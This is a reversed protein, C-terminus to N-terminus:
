HLVRLMTLEKVLPLLSRPMTTDTARVTHNKDGDDVTVRYQFEDPTSQMVLNPPINFFDADDILKQVNEAEYDPLSDIDLDFHLENGIVGGSREFTITAM